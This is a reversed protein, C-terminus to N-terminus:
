VISTNLIYNRFKGLAIGRHSIKNKIRPELEAFTNNYGDPVFLPDYGFGGNGRMSKLIHGRCVGEFVKKVSGNFYIIVCRFCAGREGDEINQLKKLLKVCNDYDSSFEGAYRSSYIGPEGKLFDTELGSDDAIVPFQLTDFAAKAKLWANEEFTLGTEKVENMRPFDLFSLLEFDNELLCSRIENIKGKNKSAIFLRKM